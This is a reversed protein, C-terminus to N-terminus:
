EVFSLRLQSRRMPVAHAGAPKIHQRQVGQRQQLRVPHVHDPHQGRVERFRIQTKNRGLLKRREGAHLLHETQVLDALQETLFAHRQELAAYEELALPNVRGLQGLKREADLLEALEVIGDVSAGVDVFACENGISLIEGAVKEGVKLKRGGEYAAMLEAMANNNDEVM